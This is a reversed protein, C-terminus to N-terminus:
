SFYSISHIPLPASFNQLGQSDEWRTTTYNMACEAFCLNRFNHSSLGIVYFSLQFVNLGRIWIEHWLVLHFFFSLFLNLQYWKFYLSLGISLEVSASEIFLCLFQYSIIFMSCGAAMERLM